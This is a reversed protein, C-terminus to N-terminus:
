IEAITNLASINTIFLKNNKKVEKTSNSLSKSSEQSSVSMHFLLYFM